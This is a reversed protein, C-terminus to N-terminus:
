QGDEEADEESEEEDEDGKKEEAQSKIDVVVPENKGAKSVIVSYTPMVKGHRGVKAKVGNQKEREALEKERREEKAIRRQEQVSIVVKEKDRKSKTKQRKTVVVGGKKAFDDIIRSWKSRMAKEGRHQGKTFANFGEVLKDWDGVPSSPHGADRAEEYQKGLWKLDRGSYDPRDETRKLGFYRRLRQDRWGKLSKISAANNWDFDASRRYTSWGNEGYARFLHPQPDGKKATIRDCVITTGDEFRIFDHYFNDPNGTQDNEGGPGDGNTPDYRFVRDDEGLDVEVEGDTLSRDDPQEDPVFVLAMDHTINFAGRTLLRQRLNWIDSASPRAPMGHEESGGVQTAAWEQADPTQFEWHGPESPQRTPNLYTRDSYWVVPPDAGPGHASTFVPDGRARMSTIVSPDTVGMRRAMERDYTMLWRYRGPGPVPQEPNVIAGNSRAIQAIADRTAQDPRILPQAHGATISAAQTNVVDDSALGATSSPETSLASALSQEALHTFLPSSEPLDPAFTRVLDIFRRTATMQESASTSREDDALTSLKQKKTQPPAM